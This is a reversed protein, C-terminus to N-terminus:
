QIVLVGLKLPLGIFGAEPGALRGLAAKLGRSRDNHGSNGGSTGFSGTWLDDFGFLCWCLWSFLRGFAWLGLLTLAECVFVGIFLLRSSTDPTSDTDTV